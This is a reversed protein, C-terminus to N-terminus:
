SSLLVYSFSDTVAYAPSLVYSVANDENNFWQGIVLSQPDIGASTGAPNQNFKIDGISIHDIEAEMFLWGLTGISQTDGDDMPNVLAGLLLGGGTKIGYPTVGDTDRGANFIQGKSTELYIHGLWLGDGDGYLIASTITEGPALTM